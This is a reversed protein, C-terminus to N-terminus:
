TETRPKLRPDRHQRMLKFQNFTDKLLLVSALTSLSVRKKGEGIGKNKKQPSHHNFNGHTHVPTPLDQQGYPSLLKNINKYFRFKCIIYVKYIFLPTLQTKPLTGIPTGYM